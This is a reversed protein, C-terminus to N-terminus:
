SSPFVNTRGNLTGLMVYIPAFLIDSQMFFPFGSPSVEM